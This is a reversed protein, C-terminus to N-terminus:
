DELLDHISIGREELIKRFKEMARQEVLSITNKTLFMKEAVEAQSYEYQDQLHSM